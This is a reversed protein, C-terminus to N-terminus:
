LRGWCYGRSWVEPIFPYPAVTSPDGFHFQVYEDVAKRTEYAKSSGGLISTVSRNELGRGAYWKLAVSGLAAAVGAGALIALVDGKGRSEMRCVVGFIPSGVQGYRVGGQSLDTM